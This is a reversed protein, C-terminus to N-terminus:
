KDRTCAYMHPYTLRTLIHMAKYHTTGAMGVQLRM